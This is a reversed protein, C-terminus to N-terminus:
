FSGVYHKGWKGYRGEIDRNFDNAFSIDSNRSAVSMATVSEAKHDRKKKKKHESTKGSHRLKAKKDGGKFFRKLEHFVTDKKELHHFHTHHYHHNYEPKKFIFQSPTSPRPPPIIGSNKSTDSRRGQDSSSGSSARSVSPDSPAESPSVADGSTRPSLSAPTYPTTSSAIISPDLSQRPTSVGSSGDHSPPRSSFPTSDEDRQPSFNPSGPVSYDPTITEFQQTVRQQFVKPPTDFNVSKLKQSLNHVHSNDNSATIAEAM